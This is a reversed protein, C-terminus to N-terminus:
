VYLFFFFVPTHALEQGKLYCLFCLAVGSCTLRTPMNVFTKCGPFSFFCFFFVSVNQCLVMHREFFVKANTSVVLNLEYVLSEPNYDPNYDPNYLASANRNFCDSFHM